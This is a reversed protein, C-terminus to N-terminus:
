SKRVEDRCHVKQWTGVRAWRANIGAWPRPSPGVVTTMWKVGRKRDWGHKVLGSISLLDIRWNRNSSKETEWCSSVNIVGTKITWIEGRSWWRWWDIFILMLGSWSSQHHSILDCARKTENWLPLSRSLHGSDQSWLWWILRRWSSSFSPTRTRPLNIVFSVFGGNRDSSTLRVGHKDAGLM